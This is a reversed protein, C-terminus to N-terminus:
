DCDWFGAFANCKSCRFLYATPSGDKDLDAYM